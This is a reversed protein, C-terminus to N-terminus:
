GEYRYIREERSFESFPLQRSAPPLREASGLCLFGGPYLSQAFKELVRQRLQQDFYIFVNRCFIVHMEGFVHDGVLDHQFFLINRKLSERLAVQDYARTGYSALAASGGSKAYNEAFTEFRDANYVAQRAQELAAANLDTAYIQSRDYLGAEELLIASAYAEEGSSCGGHWIKLLPYTRLMPLVRERFTRYFSPDRFMETVRVTLDDLVGPFSSPDVLIRHQLEGLHRLGSRALAARVRRRMSSSAYERLDFGYRAHIAELLLRIEIAEPDPEPTM